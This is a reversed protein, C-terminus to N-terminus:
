CFLTTSFYFYNFALNMKQYIISIPTYLSNVMNRDVLTPKIDQHRAPRLHKAVLCINGRLIHLLLYFRHIQKNPNHPLLFLSWCLDRFNFQM